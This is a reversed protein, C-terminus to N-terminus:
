LAKTNLEPRLPVLRAPSLMGKSDAGVNRFVSVVTQCGSCDHAEFLKKCAAVRLNAPVWVDHMPSLSRIDAKTLLDLMSSIPIDVAICNKHKALIPQLEARKCQFEFVYEMHQWAVINNSEVIYPSLLRGSMTQRVGGGYRVACRQHAINEDDLDCTSYEDYEGSVAFTKHPGLPVVADELCGTTEHTTEERLIKMGYAYDFPKMLLSWIKRLTLLLHTTISINMLKHLHFQNEFHGLGETHRSNFKAYGLLSVVLSSNVYGSVVLSSKLSGMILRVAAGRRAGLRRIIIACKADLALSAHTLGRAMLDVDGRRAVAPCLHPLSESLIDSDFRPCLVSVLTDSGQWAPCSGSTPADPAFRVDTGHGVHKPAGPDVILGLCLFISVALLAQIPYSPRRVSSNVFRLVLIITLGSLRALLKLSGLSKSPGCPALIVPVASSEPKVALPHDSAVGSSASVTTSPAFVVQLLIPGELPLPPCPRQEPPEVETYISVRMDLCIILPKRSLTQPSPHLNQTTLALSLLPLVANRGRTADILSDLHDATSRLCPVPGNREPVPQATFRLKASSFVTQLGAGLDTTEARYLDNKLDQETALVNFTSRGSHGDAFRTRSVLLKILRIYGSVTRCPFKSPPKSNQRRPWELINSFLGLSRDIPAFIAWSNGLQCLQLGAM